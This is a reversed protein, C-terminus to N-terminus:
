NEVEWPLLPVNTETAIESKPRTRFHILKKLVLATNKQHRACNILRSSQM